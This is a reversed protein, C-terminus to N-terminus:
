NVISLLVFICHKLNDSEQGDESSREKNIVAAQVIHPQPALYISLNEPNYYYADVCNDRLM